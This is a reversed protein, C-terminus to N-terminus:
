AQNPKRPVLGSRSLVLSLRIKTNMVEAALFTICTLGSDILHHKLSPINSSLTRWIFTDLLISSLDDTEIVTLHAIDIGNLFGEENSSVSSFSIDDDVLGWETFPILQDESVFLQETQLIDVLEEGM